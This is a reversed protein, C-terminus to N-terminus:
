LGGAFRGPALVNKPDFSHKVRRMLEFDPRSPGWVIEASTKLSAPCWELMTSAHMEAEGCIRFVAAIVGALSRPPTAEEQQPLFAAQLIGSARALSVFDLESQAALVRLRGVLPAIAAPTVSIRFIAASPDRETMLRPFERIQALVADAEPDSLPVFEEASADGALRGLEREYRDVVAPQGAASVIVTWIRPELRASIEGSFLLAAAGPNAIEV